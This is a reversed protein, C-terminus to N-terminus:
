DPGVAQTAAQDGADAPAADPLEVRRRLEASPLIGQALAIIARAYDATQLLEPVVQATYSRILSAAQELGLYCEFWEPILDLYSHWWEPTSGRRALGLLTARESQDSVGYVACLGAVHRLRLATQGLEMDTIHPTPLAVADSADATSLGAKERHRRLTAGLVM